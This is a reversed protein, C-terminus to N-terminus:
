AIVMTGIETLGDGASYKAIAKGVVNGTLCYYGSNIKVTESQKYGTRATIPLHCNNMILVSSTKNALVIVGVAENTNTSSNYVLVECDNLKVINNNCVVGYSDGSGSTVSFRCNTFTGDAQSGTASRDATVWINTDSVNLNTGAICVLDVGNSVSLQLNSIDIDKANIIYGEAGAGADIVIRDCHKFNLRVKRNTNITAMFDFWTCPLGSVAPTTCAFAGYVDIEKQKYDTGGNLFTKVINSLKINDDVGTSIYMGTELTKTIVQMEEVTEVISEADSGDISKYVVFSISTGVVDLAKNLTVFQNTKTYDVDSLRQASVYVELVDLNYNYNPVFQTVDFRAENEEVTTYTAEFKRLLTATSLTEKVNSFWTNFATDYQNFISTTDIEEILGKVVGCVTSDYRTDTIDANTIATAQKNIRVNALCMEYRTETRTLAPPVPSSSPTGTLVKIGMARETSDTYFIVRDIRDLLVDSSNFTVVYDATNDLKHGNIWGSGAKVIADLGSSAVVQLNNSENIFVGNSVLEKLYSTFDNATYTRDYTSGDLVANFFYSKIAM